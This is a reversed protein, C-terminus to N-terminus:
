TIKEVILLFKSKTQIEDRLGTVCVGSADRAVYAASAEVASHCLLLYGIRGGSCDNPLGKKSFFREGTPMKYRRIASM